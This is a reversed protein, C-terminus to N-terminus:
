SSSEFDWSFIIFDSVLKLRSGMPWEKSIVQYCEEALDLREHIPVLEFDEYYYM